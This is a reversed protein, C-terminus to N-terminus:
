GFKGVGQEAYQGAYEEGADDLRRRRRNADQLSQRYGSGDLEVHGVGQYQAYRYARRHRHQQRSHAGGRVALAGRVYIKQHVHQAHDDPAGYEIHYVGERMKRKHGHGHGRHAYGKQIGQETEGRHRHQRREDRPKLPDDVNEDLFLRVAAGLRLVEVTKLFAEHVMGRQGDLLAAQGDIGHRAAGLLVEHVGHREQVVIGVRTELRTLSESFAM